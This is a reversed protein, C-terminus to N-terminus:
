PRRGIGRYVLIFLIISAALAIGGALWQHRNIWEGIPYDLM